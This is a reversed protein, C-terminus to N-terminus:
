IVMFGKFKNIHGVQKKFVPRWQSYGFMSYDQRKKLITAYYLSM